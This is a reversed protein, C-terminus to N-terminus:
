EHEAAVVFRGVQHAHRYDPPATRPIPFYWRDFKWMPDFEATLMRLKIANYSRL